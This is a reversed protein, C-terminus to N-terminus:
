RLGRLAFHTHLLLSIIILKHLGSFQLFDQEVEGLIHGSTVHSKVRTDMTILWRRAPHTTSGETTKIPRYHLM